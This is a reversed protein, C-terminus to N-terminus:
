YAEGVSSCVSRSSRRIQSSLSYQEEKPLDKTLAFVEMLLDFGKIYVKLNRFNGM